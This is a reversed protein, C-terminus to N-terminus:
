NLQAHLLSVIRQADSSNDLQGDSDVVAVQTLTDAKPRVNVLFQRAPKPAGGGFLKGLLGDKKLEAMSDSYRV